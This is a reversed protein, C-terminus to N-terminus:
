GAPFYKEIDIQEYGPIRVREFKKGKSGVPKTADIGVKCTTGSINHSPDLGSGSAGPVIVIDNNGQVRTAIMGAVDEHDFIDVDDDFVAVHKLDANSGLAALVASKGDGDSRKRISILAHLRYGGGVTVNVDRVDVVRKLASYLEIERILGNSLHEERCPFCIQFIPDDRFMISRVEILPQEAIDGYYGMLEGFPGEKATRGPPIIGEMVIESWAPVELDVSNCKVLELPERRLASDIGYKDIGYVSSSVQSALLFPYDYGLIVAVEMAKNRKGLGAVQSSFGPSAILINLSNGDNVQLRRM